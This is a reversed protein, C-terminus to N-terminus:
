NCCLLYCNREKLKMPIHALRIQKPPIQGPPIHGLPYTELPYTDLAYIDKPYTDPSFMDTPPPPSNLRLVQYM